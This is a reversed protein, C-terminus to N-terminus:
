PLFVPGLVQSVPARCMPCGNDQWRAKPACGDCLSLHMCPTMLMSPPHTWCAVCKYAGTDTQPTASADSDWPSTPSYAPNTPRYEPPPPAGHVPSDPIYVPEGPGYVYAPSAPPSDAGDDESSDGSSYSYNSLAHAPSAPPSDATLDILEPQYAPSHPPSDAHNAM